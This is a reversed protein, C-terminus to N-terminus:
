HKKFYESLKPTFFLFAVITISSFGALGIISWTLTYFIIGWVSPCLYLLYLTSYALVIKNKWNGKLAWIRKVHTVLKVLVTRAMFCIAISFTILTTAFVPIDTELTVKKDGPPLFMVLALVASLPVIVNLIAGINRAKSYEQQFEPPIPKKEM